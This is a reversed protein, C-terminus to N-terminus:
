LVLPVDVASGAPAPALSSSSIMAGVLSSFAQLIQDTAMIPLATDAVQMGLIIFDRTALLDVTGWGKRCAPPDARGVGETQRELAAAITEEELVHQVAQQRARVVQQDREPQRQDEREAADDVERM